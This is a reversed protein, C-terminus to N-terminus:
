CCSVPFDVHMIIPLQITHICLLVNALNAHLLEVACRRQVCTRWGRLLWLIWMSVM